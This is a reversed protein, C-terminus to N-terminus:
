LRWKYKRLLKKGEKRKKFMGKNDWFLLYKSATAISMNFENAVDPTEIWGGEKKIYDLIDNAKRQNIDANMYEPQKKEIIKKSIKEKVKEKKKGRLQVVRHEIGKRPRGLVDKLLKSLKYSSLEEHEEATKIITEDEESIWRPKKSKKVLPNIFKKKEKVVKIKPRGRKRGHDIPKGMMARVIHSVYAFSIEDKKKCTDGYRYLYWVDGKWTKMLEQTIQKPKLYQWNPISKIREQWVKDRAEKSGELVAVPTEEEGYEMGKELLGAVINVKKLFSRATMEEEFPITLKMGEGVDIKIEKMKEEM